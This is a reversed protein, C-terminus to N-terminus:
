HPSTKRKEVADLRVKPNMGDGTSHNYAVRNELTFNGFRSASRDRRYTASNLLAHFKAEVGGYM